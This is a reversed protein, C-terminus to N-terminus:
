FKDSALVNVLRTRIMQFDDAQYLDFAAKVMEKFVDDRWTDPGSAAPELVENLIVTFLEGQQQMWDENYINPKNIYKSLPFSEESQSISLMKVEWLGVPPHCPVIAGGQCLM